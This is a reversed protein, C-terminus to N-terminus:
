SLISLLFRVASAPFLDGKALHVAYEPNHEAQQRLLRGISVFRMGTAQELLEAQTSKGSAPPGVFAYIM